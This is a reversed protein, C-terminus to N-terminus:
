DSPRGKAPKGNEKLPVPFRKPDPNRAITGDPNLIYRGHYGPYPDVGIRPDINPTDLIPSPVGAYIGFDDMHHGVTWEMLGRDSTSHASGDALGLQGQNGRLGAMTRNSDSNNEYGLWHAYTDHDKDDPNGLSQNSLSDGYNQPGQINRTVTLITTGRIFDAGLDPAGNAKSAHRKGLLEPVEWSREIWVKRYYYGYYNVEEYYDKRFVDSGCVLGYSHANDPVETVSVLNIMENATILSPDCPSLLVKSTGLMVRILGMGFLVDTRYSREGWIGQAGKDVDVILWPFKVENDGAYVIFAANIQKINNACKMRRARNKAMALGPLLMSMLIGLVAMAVIVELLSYAHKRRPKSM